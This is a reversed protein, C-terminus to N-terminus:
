QPLACRLGSTMCDRVSMKMQNRRNKSPEISKKHLVPRGLLWLLATKQSEELICKGLLLMLFSGSKRVSSVIATDLTQVGPDKVEAWDSM